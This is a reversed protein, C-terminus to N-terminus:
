TPELVVLPTADSVEDGKSVQIEQVVGDIPAFINNEMKMAEIRLVVDGATIRDGPNVLIESIVGPMPAVILQGGASTRNTLKTHNRAVVHVPADSPLEEEYSVSYTRGNVSFQVVERTRSLVTVEYSNGNVLLKM